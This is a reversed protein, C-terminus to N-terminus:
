AGYRFRGVPVERHLDQSPRLVHVDRPRLMVIDPLAGTRQLHKTTLPEFMLSIYIHLFFKLIASKKNLENFIVVIHTVKNLHLFLNSSL